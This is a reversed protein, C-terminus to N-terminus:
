VGGQVIMSADGGRLARLAGHLSSSAFKQLGGALSIRAVGLEQLRQLTPTGSRLWINVPGGMSKVLEEIDREDSVGIPYICAAGAALYTRGRRLTEAVRSEPAGVSRIFVDVRANVIIPVGAAEAATCLGEIRNAQASADILVSSGHHDSDELNCGVAGAALLRDVLESPKLGYGAEIDASLPLPVARAIRALVEFALEPGMAEGDEVGLSAAIASSSTAIAPFGVAGVLRASEVDWVNPLVLAGPAHHLRRLIEARNRLVDAHIAAPPGPEGM